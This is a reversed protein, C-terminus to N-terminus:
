ITKRCMGDDQDKTLLSIKGNRLYWLGNNVDMGYGGWDWRKEFVVNPASNIQHLYIPRIVQFHIETSNWACWQSILLALFGASLVSIFRGLSRLVVARFIMVLATIFTSLGLVSGAIALPSLIPDGTNFIGILACLLACTPMWIYPRGFIFDKV